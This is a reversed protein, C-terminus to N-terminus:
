RTRGMVTLPIVSGKYIEQAHGPRCVTVQVEGAAIAEAVRRSWSMMEDRSVRPRRFRAAARMAARQDAAAAAALREREAAIEEKTRRRVHGTALGLEAHWGRRHMACILACKSVGLHRACASISAGPNDAFYQRVRGLVAPDKWDIM